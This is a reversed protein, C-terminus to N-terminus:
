ARAPRRRRDRARRPSYPPAPSRNRRTARDRREDDHVAGDDGASGEGNGPCSAACDVSAPQENRLNRQRLAVVTATTLGPASATVNYTGPWAAYPQGINSDNWNLEAFQQAGAVTTPGLAVTVQGAGAAHFPTATVSVKSMDTGVPVVVALTSTDIPAPDVVITNGAGSVSVMQTTTKIGPASIVVTVTRSALPLIVAPFGFPTFCPSSAPITM